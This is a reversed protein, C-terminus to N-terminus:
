AADRRHPPTEARRREDRNVWHGLMVSFVGIFIAPVILGAWLPLQLVWRRTGAALFSMAANPDLRAWQWAQFFRLDPWTGHRAWYYEQWLASGLAVVTLAVGVLTIALRCFRFIFM